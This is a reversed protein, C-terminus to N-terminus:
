VQTSEVLRARLFYYTTIRLARTQKYGVFQGLIAGCPARASKLGTVVACAQAGRPAM